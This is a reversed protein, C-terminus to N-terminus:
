TCIGGNRHSRDGRLYFAIGAAALGLLWASDTMLHFMLLHRYTECADALAAVAFEVAAMALISAALLALRGSLSGRERWGGAALGAWSVFFLVAFGHPWRNLCRSRLSSWLSMRSTRAGAPRNDVNRFNSLNVPRMAPAEFLLALSLDHLALRPNCLYFAALRRHSVRDSFRAVWAPQVTPSLPMFAHMGVFPLYSDDLKLQRLTGAPDPSNKAIRFFIANFLAQSRYWSPTTAVAVLSVLLILVSGLLAAFRLRHRRFWWFLFVAAVPAVLAHQSKSGAFLMAGGTFVAVLWLSRSGALMSAAASIFLVFGLIAATDSYFSNFYATYCVDLFCLFLLAAFALRWGAPWPRTARVAIALALLFLLSHLAGLWRIDFHRGSGALKAVNIAIGALGAESPYYGPNWYHAPDRDYDPQFYLFENPAGSRGWLRYRGAVKAFDGNDAIGIFPPILLLWALVGAAAVLVIWELRSALKSM